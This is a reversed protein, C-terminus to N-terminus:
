RNTVLNEVFSRWFKLKFFQKFIVLWKISQIVLNLPIKLLIDFLIVFDFINLEGM